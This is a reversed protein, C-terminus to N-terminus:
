CYRAPAAYGIGRNGGGKKGRRHWRRHHLHVEVTTTANRAPRMEGKFVRREVSGHMGKVGTLTTLLHRTVM